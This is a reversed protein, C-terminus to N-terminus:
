FSGCFREVGAVPAQNVPEMAVAAAALDEGCLDFRRTVDDHFPLAPFSFCGLILLPPAKVCERHGPGDGDSGPADSFM